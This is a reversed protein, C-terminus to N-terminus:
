IDLCADCARQLERLIRSHLLNVQYATLAVYAEIVKSGLAINNRKKLIGFGEVSQGVKLACPSTAAEREERCALTHRQMVLRALLYTV